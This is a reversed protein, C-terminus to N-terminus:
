DVCIVVKDEISIIARLTEFVAFLAKISERQLQM